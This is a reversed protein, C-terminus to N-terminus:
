GEVCFEFPVTDTLSDKTVTIPVKWSGDMSFFVPKLEYIGGGKDAIVAVRDVGHGNHKPMTQLMQLTAGELAAGSSDEVRVSWTNDMKVGPTAPVAEVITLRVGGPGTKSLNPAFTDAAECGEPHTHNHGDGDSSDGGCAPLVLLAALASVTGARRAM